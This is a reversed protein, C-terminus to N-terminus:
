EQSVSGPPVDNRRKETRIFKFRDSQPDMRFPVPEMGADMVQKVLRESWKILRENAARLEHVETELQAVRPVLPRLLVLEAQLDDVLKTASNTIKETADADGVKVQNATQKRANMWQLIGLVVVGVASFLGIWDFDM